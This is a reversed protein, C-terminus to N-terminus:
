SVTGDGENVVLVRETRTDVVAPGPARGVRISRLLTGTREDLLTVHGAGIYQGLKNQPGARIVFLHGTRDDVILNSPTEDVRATHLVAGSRADLVSLEGRVGGRAFAIARQAHEDVVMLDPNGPVPFTQLYQGSRADLVLVSRNPSVSEDISTLFIRGLAQDVALGLPPGGVAVNQVLAGSRADLVSVSSDGAVFM